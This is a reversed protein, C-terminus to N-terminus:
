RGSAPQGSTAVSVRFSYRVVAGAGSDGTETVTLVYDGTPLLSSPLTVSLLRSRSRTVTAEEVERGTATALNVRYRSASGDPHDFVLTAWPSSEPLLVRNELEGHEGSRTLNLLFVPAAVAANPPAAAPAAPAPRDPVPSRQALAAQAQAAADRAVALERGTHRVQFYLLTSLAGAALVAAAALFAARRAGRSMSLSAARESELIGAAALDKLASRLGEAAELRDLCAPCDVFHEEFRVREEEGARGLVYREALQTEEIAAHDM